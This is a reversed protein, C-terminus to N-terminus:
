RMLDWQGEPRGWRDDLGGDYDPHHNEWTPGEPSGLPRQEAGGM